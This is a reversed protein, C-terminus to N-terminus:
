NFITHETLALSGDSAMALFFSIPDEERVTVQHKAPHATRLFNHFIVDQILNKENFITLSHPSGLDDIPFLNRRGFSPLASREHFCIRFKSLFPHLLNASTGTGDPVSSLQDHHNRQGSTPIMSFM